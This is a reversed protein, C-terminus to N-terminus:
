RSRGRGRVLWPDQDNDPLVVAEIRHLTDDDAALRSLVLRECACTGAKEFLMLELMYAM